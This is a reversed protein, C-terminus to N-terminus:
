ANAKAVVAAEVWETVVVAEAVWEIVVVVEGVWENAVVAEEVFRNAAEAWSPLRETSPLVVCVPVSVGVPRAVKWFPRM